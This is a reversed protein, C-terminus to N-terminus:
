SAYSSEESEKKSGLVKSAAHLYAIISSEIIDTSLGRGTFTRGGYALKVTAEGQADKGETVSQMSWDALTAESNIIKKLLKSLHM